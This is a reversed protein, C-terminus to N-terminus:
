RRPQSDAAGDMRARLAQLRANLAQLEALRGALRGNQAARAVSLFGGAPAYEPADDDPDSPLDVNFAMPPPSLPESLPESLPAPMEDPAPEDVFPFRNLYSDSEDVDDHTDAPAPAASAAEAPAPTARPQGFLDPTTPSAPAAIPTAAPTVPLPVVDASGAGAAPPSLAAVHKVGQERLLKQVGRITLGDEHLLKKIGGLLAMDAPRYYRRGGARKVPKVQSFRSEWFRLVHTPM